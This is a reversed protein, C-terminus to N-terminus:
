NLNVSQRQQLSFTKLFHKICPECMKNMYAGLRLDLRVMILSILFSESDNISNKILKIADEVTKKQAELELLQECLDSFKLTGTSTKLAKLIKDNKTM